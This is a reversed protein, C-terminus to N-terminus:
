QPFSLKCAKSAATVQAQTDSAKGPYGTVRTLGQSVAVGQSLWLADHSVM